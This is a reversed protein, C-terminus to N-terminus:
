GRRIRSKEIGMFFSNGNRYAFCGRHWLGTLISNSWDIDSGWNSLCTICFAVERALRQVDRYGQSYDEEYKQQGSRGRREDQTPLTGFQSAKDQIPHM